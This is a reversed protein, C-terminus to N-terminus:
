GASSERSKRKERWLEISLGAFLVLAGFFFNGRAQAQLPFPLAILFVAYSAILWWLM